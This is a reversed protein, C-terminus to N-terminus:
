RGITEAIKEYIHAKKKDKWIIGFLLVRLLVGVPLILNLIKTEWPAKYKKFFYKIFVFEEVLGAEQNQSSAGKHHLVKTSPNYIINYGKKKIRYCLEIEEGYMFIKRDFFGSKELVDKRIFMCAGTVWDPNVIREKEPHTIHYPKISKIFFPIDDIFLMWCIVKFLNPFYGYSSQDSGDPNILRPAAVGIITEDELIKINGWITNDIIGTDSNLLLIYKGKAMKLGQNNAPGFGLNTRNKRFIVRPFDKRIMEASGDKSANDIVIIECDHARKDSFTFNHLSKLLSSLLIRTNYSVIIISLIM